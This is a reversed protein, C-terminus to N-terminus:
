CSCSILALDRANKGEVPMSITFEPQVQLFGSVLVAPSIDVLFDGDMVRPGSRGKGRDM